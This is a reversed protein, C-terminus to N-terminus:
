HHPATRHNGKRMKGQKGPSRHKAHNPAPRVPHKSAKAM